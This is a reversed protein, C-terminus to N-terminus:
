MIMKVTKHKLFSICRCANFSDGSDINNEELNFLPSFRNDSTFNANRIKAAQKNLLLPRKPRYWSNEESANETDHEPQCVQLQYHTPLYNIDNRQPAVKLNHM